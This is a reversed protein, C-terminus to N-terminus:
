RSKRWSAVHLESMQDFLRKEARDNEAARVRKLRTGVVHTASRAKVYADLAAGTKKNAAELDKEKEAAKDRAISEMQTYLLMRDLNLNIEDLLALRRDQVQVVAECAYDHAHQACTREFVTKQYANGAIEKQFERWRGLTTLTSFPSGNM